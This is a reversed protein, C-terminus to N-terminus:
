FQITVTGEKLDNLVGTIKLIFDLVKNHTLAWQGACMSALVTASAKSSLFAENCPSLFCLELRDGEGPQILHLPNRPVAQHTPTSAPSTEM